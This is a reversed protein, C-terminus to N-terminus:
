DAFCPGVAETPPADLLSSDPGLLQVPAAGDCDSAKAHM